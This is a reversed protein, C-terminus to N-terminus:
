NLIFKLSSGIGLAIDPYEDGNTECWTAAIAVPADDQDPVMEALDVERFAFSAPLEIADWGGLSGPPLPVSYKGREAVHADLATRTSRSRLSSFAKFQKLAEANDARLLALRMLHYHSYLHNPNLRAAEQFHKRALGWQNLDRLILGVNYNAEACESDMALVRRFNALALHLQGLHKQCLGLSYPISPLDPDLREAQALVTIAKRYEDVELYALALNVWTAPSDPKIAKCKEFAKVAEDGRGQEIAAAGSVMLEALAHDGAPEWFRRTPKM